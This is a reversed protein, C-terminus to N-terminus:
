RRRHEAVGAILVAVGAPGSVARDMLSCAGGRWLSWRPERTVPGAEERGPAGLVAAVPLRWAPPGSIM